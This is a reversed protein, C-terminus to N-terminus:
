NVLLTNDECSAGVARKKKGRPETVTASIYVTGTDELNPLSPVVFTAVADNTAGLGDFTQTVNQSYSVPNPNLTGPPLQNELPVTIEVSIEPVAWQGPYAPEKQVTVTFPMGPNVGSAVLLSCGDAVLIPPKATATLPILLVLGIKLIATKIRM